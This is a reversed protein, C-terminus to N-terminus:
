IHPELIVQAENEHRGRNQETRFVCGGITELREFGSRHVLKGTAGFAKPLQIDKSSLSPGPVCHTLILLLCLAGPYEPKCTKAREPSIV